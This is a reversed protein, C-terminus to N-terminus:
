RMLEHAMDPDNAVKGRYLDVALAVYGQKAFRDAQQKVWDNLGWWEQIVIIAPHKGPTAPLSLYGSADGFKVIQGHLATPVATTVTAKADGHDHQALAATTIVLSLLLMLTQRM